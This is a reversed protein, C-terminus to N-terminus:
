HLSRSKGYRCRYQCVGNHGGVLEVLSDVYRHATQFSSRISNLSWSSDENALPRNPSTKQVPNINNGEEVSSSSPQKPTVAEGTFTELPPADGDPSDGDTGPKEATAGDAVSVDVTAEDVAGEERALVEAPVSSGFFSNAEPEEAAPPDDATTDEAAHEVDTVAPAEEKSAATQYTVLTASMGASVCLLLLVATRLQMTDILHRDLFQPQPLTLFAYLTISLFVAGVTEALWLASKSGHSPELLCCLLDRLNPAFTVGM